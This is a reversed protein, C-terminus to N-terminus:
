WHHQPLTSPTSSSTPPSICHFNLWSSPRPHGPSNPFATTSTSNDSMASAHMTLLLWYDTQLVLRPLLCFLCQVRSPQPRIWHKPFATPRMCRHSPKLGSELAPMLVDPTCLIQTLTLATALVSLHQISQHQTHLQSLIETCSAANSHYSRVFTKRKKSLRSTSINRTIM